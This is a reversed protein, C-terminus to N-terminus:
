CSCWSYHMNDVQRYAQEENTTTRLGGDGAPFSPSPGRRINFTPVSDPQKCEYPSLSSMMGEKEAGEMWMYVCACLPALVGM